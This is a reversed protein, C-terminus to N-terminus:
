SPTGDDTMLEHPIGCLDIAEALAELIPVAERSPVARIGLPFRSFDDVLAVFHCGRRGWTRIPLFFPRRLDIHWLEHPSTREHDPVPVRPLSTRNTCCRALLRDAQRHSV